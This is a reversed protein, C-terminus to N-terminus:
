FNGTFYEHCNAIFPADSYQSCIEMIGTNFSVYAIPMFKISSLNDAMVFASKFKEQHHHYMLLKDVSLDSAGEYVENISYLLCEIGNLFETMIINNAAPSEDMSNNKSEFDIISITLFKMANLAIVTKQLDEKKFLTIGDYINAAPKTLEM